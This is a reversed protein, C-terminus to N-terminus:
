QVKECNDINAISISKEFAFLPLNKNMNEPLHCEILM